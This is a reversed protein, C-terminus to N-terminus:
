WLEPEEGYPIRGNEGWVWHEMSEGWTHTDWNWEGEEGEVGSWEVLVYSNRRPYLVYLLNDYGTPYEKEGFPTDCCLFGTYIFEESDMDEEWRQNEECWEYTSLTQFGYKRWNVGFNNGVRIVTGLPVKGISFEWENEKTPTFTTNDEAGLIDKLQEVNM